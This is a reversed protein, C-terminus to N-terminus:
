DLVAVISCVLYFKSPKIEAHIAAASEVAPIHVRNPKKPGIWLKQMLEFAASAGCYKKGTPWKM